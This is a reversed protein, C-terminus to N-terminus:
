PQPGVDRSKRYRGYFYIAGAGAAAAGILYPMSFKRSEGLNIQEGMCVVQYRENLEDRYYTNIPVGFNRKYEALYYPFPQCQWASTRAVDASVCEGEALSM